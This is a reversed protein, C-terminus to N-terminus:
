RETRAVGLIEPMLTTGTEVAQERASATRKKVAMYKKYVVSGKLEGSFMKVSVCDRRCMGISTRKVRRSAMRFAPSVGDSSIRRPFSAEM